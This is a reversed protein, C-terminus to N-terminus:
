VLAINKNNSATVSHVSGYCFSKRNLINYNACVSCEFYESEKSVVDYKM